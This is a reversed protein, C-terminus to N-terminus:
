IDIVQTYLFLCDTLKTFVKINYLNEGNGGLTELVLIVVKRDQKEIATRPFSTRTFLLVTPFEEFRPMFPGPM